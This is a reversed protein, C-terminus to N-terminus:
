EFIFREKNEKYGKNKIVREIERGRECVRARKRRESIMSCIVRM